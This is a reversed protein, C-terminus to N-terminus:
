LTSIRDPPWAILMAEGIINRRPLPGWSRSDESNARNDGMVFYDGPPITFPGYDPYHHTAVYPERLAHCGVHPAHCILVTGKVIQITEGPLGIVRKIYNVNAEHTSDKIPNAGYGPPHFVIIDGRRPPHLHYIFRNVLVRDGIHLTPEMSASPIWYPKVVWGQVVYALGFAFVLILVIELLPNMSRRRAGTEPLVAADGTLGHETGGAAPEGWPPDAPPQAGNDSSGPIPPITDAPPPQGPPTPDPPPEGL